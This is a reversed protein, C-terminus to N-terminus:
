VIPKPAGFHTPPALVKNIAHIIGNSAELDRAELKSGNVTIGNIDTVMMEEGTITKGTKLDSALVKGPLIHYMLLAKLQLQKEENVLKSMREESFKAFADNTPALVTFDGGGKFIEDAGSSEMIKSFTSFNDENAITKILNLKDSVHAGQPCDSPSYSALCADFLNTCAIPTLRYGFFESVSFFSYAVGQENRDDEGQVM